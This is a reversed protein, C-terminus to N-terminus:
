LYISDDVLVSNNYKVLISNWEKSNLQSIVRVRLTITENKDISPLLYYTENYEYLFSGVNKEENNIEIYFDSEEIYVTHNTNNTFRITFDLYYDNTREGLSFRVFSAKVDNPKCGGLLCCLTCLFILVFIISKKKKNIMDVIININLQFTLNFM